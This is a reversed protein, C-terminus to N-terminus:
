SKRKPMEALLDSNNNMHEAEASLPVLLEEEMTNACYYSDHLGNTCSQEESASSPWRSKQASSSLIILHKRLRYNVLLSALFAIVFVALVSSLYAVSRFDVTVTTSGPLEHVEVKVTPKLLQGALPLCPLGTSFFFFYYTIVYSESNCVFGMDDLATGEVCGHQLNIYKSGVTSDFPLDIIWGRLTNAQLDFLLKM